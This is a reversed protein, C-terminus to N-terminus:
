SQVLNSGPAPHYRGRAIWAAGYLGSIRFYSDTGLKRVTYTGLPHVRVIEVEHLRECLIFDGVKPIM